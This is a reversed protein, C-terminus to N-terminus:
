SDEPRRHARVMVRAGGADDDCDRAARRVRMAKSEPKKKRWARGGVFTSAGDEM